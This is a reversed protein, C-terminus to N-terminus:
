TADAKSVYKLWTEGNCIYNKAEPAHFAGRFYVQVLIPPDECKSLYMTVGARSNYTNLRSDATAVAYGNFMKDNEEDLIIDILVGM